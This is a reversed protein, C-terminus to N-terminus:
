ICKLYIVFFTEYTLLKEQPCLEEKSSKYSSLFYIVQFNFVHHRLNTQKNWQIDNIMICM